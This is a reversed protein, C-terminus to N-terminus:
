FQDLEETLKDTIKEIENVKGEKALKNIKQITKSMKHDQVFEVMFKRIETAKSTSLDDCADGFDNWLEDSVRISRKKKTM